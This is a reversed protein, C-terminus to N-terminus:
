PIDVLTVSGVVVLLWVKVVIAVIADLVLVVLIGVLTVSGVIVLLWVKVVPLM